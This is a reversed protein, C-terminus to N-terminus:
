CVILLRPLVQQDSNKREGHILQELLKVPSDNMYEVGYESM